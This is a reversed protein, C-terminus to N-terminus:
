HHGPDVMEGVSQPAGVIAEQQQLEEAPEQRRGEPHQALLASYAGPSFLLLGSM